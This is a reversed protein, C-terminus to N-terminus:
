SFFGTRSAKNLAFARGWTAIKHEEFQDDSMKSLQEQLEARAEGTPTAAVVETILQQRDSMAPGGHGETILFSDPISETILVRGDAHEALSASRIRAAAVGPSKTFDVGDIEFADATEAAVGDIVVQRTPGTWWGRISVNALYPSSPTTLAAITRGAPTDAIDAEFTASGDPQYDVATLRGCIELSDDGAAHHTLMTLPSGDPATLREQMLAVAAKITEPAYYRGNKTVGPALFTGSLTAVRSM